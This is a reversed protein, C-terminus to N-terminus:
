KMEGHCKASCTGDSNFNESELKWKKCVPCEVVFDAKWDYLVKLMDDYASETFEHNLFERIALARPLQPNQKQQDVRLTRKNQM